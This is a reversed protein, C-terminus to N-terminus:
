NETRRPLSGNSDRTQHVRVALNRLRTVMERPRKQDIRKTVGSARLANGEDTGSM